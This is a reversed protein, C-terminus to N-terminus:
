KRSSPGRGTVFRVFIVGSVAVAYVPLLVSPKPGWLVRWGFRWIALAALVFTSAAAFTGAWAPVWTDVHEDPGRSGNSAARYSVAAVVVDLPAYAPM